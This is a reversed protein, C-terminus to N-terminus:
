LDAKRSGVHRKAEEFPHVFEINHNWYIDKVWQDKCESPRPKGHFIIITADGPPKGRKRCHNKYSYYGIFEDQVARMKVKNKILKYQTYNQEGDFQRSHKKYDFDEFLWRWNGNWIEIGSAWLVGRSFPKAQARAMYFVDFPCTIALEGLRNISEVVISDLGLM